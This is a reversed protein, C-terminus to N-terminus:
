LPTTRQEQTAKERFVPSPKAVGKNASREVSPGASPIPPKRFINPYYQLKGDDGHAYQMTTIRSYPVDIKSKYSHQARTPMFDLAMGGESLMGFVNPYHQIAPAADTEPTRAINDISSPIAGFSLDLRQATEPVVHKGQSRVEAYTSPLNQSKPALLFMISEGEKVIQGLAQQKQTEVAAGTGDDPADFDFQWGEDQRLERTSYQVDPDLSLLGAKKGWGGGGSLVKILRAGRHLMYRTATSLTTSMKQSAGTQSEWAATIAAEDATLMHRLDPKKLFNGISPSDAVKPIVLAWVSVTEPQLDLVEFYKSVAEELGQSAPVDQEDDQSNEILRSRGGEDAQLGWTRQASLKRIINGMVYNIKRFPTLPVLPLYVTRMSGPASLPPLQLRQSELKRESTLGLPENAGGHTYERLIMTSVLGTTFVTQSLPLQWKETAVRHTEEKFRPMQFTLSGPRQASEQFPIQDVAKAPPANQNLMYAMGEAGDIQDDTTPLRDVIATTTIYKTGLRKSPQLRELVANPVTSDLAHRALGPTMLLVLTIPNQSSGSAHGRPMPPIGEVLENITTALPRSTTVVGFSIDKALERPAWRWREYLERSTPKPKPKSKSKVDENPKQMMTALESKVRDDPVQPRTDPSLPVPKHIEAKADNNRKLDWAHSQDETDSPPEDKHFPKGQSGVKRFLNRQLPEDQVPNEEREDKRSTDAKPKQEGSGIAQAYGRRSM